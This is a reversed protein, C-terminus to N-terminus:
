AHSALPTPKFTISRKATKAFAYQDAAEEVVKHNAKSWHRRPWDALHGVEHFLLQEVYFNKLGVESWRSIWSDGHRLLKARYQGLVKQWRETPLRRGHDWEMSRPWSYLIIMRVGSGACFEAMPPKEKRPAANAQRFWVHTLGKWERRPLHDLERRVEAETIPFFFNRSPNDRVFIPLEDGDAPRPVSHARAFIKDPIKPHKRGGKVDGFKRSKKWATERRTQM